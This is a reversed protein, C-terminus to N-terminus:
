KAKDEEPVFVVCETTILTSAASVAYQVASRTVRVPDIVGMEVMDGVVDTAANYGVIQDSSVLKAMVMSPDVGANMLIQRFPSKIAAIVINIGVRQDGNEVQFLEVVEPDECREMKFAIHLLATGGGAIIGESVAAQVANLADDVRDRKEKLETETSAGIKIIAVGSRLKAARIRMFEKDEVTSTSTEDAVCKMLEDIRETVKEEAGGGNVITTHYPTIVVRRATGLEEGNIRDFPKGHAASIVSGGVLVAIDDMVASRSHGFEPSKVVAMKLAGRANNMVMTALAENDVDDAVILLPRGQQHALEMLPVVDNIRTIKDNCLLIYPDELVIDTSTADLNFYPTIYGNEIRLGDVTVLEDNPLNTNEVTIVGDTGVKTMADAILKGIGTDSNASISGVNCISDYGDCGVALKHLENVVFKSAKDIGRKLDMPNMGAAVAKMGEQIISRALVTATTTGDGAASNARNAVERVVDAGMNQVPDQLTIERAVSVGDKTIVPHGNFQQQLIVNRGKPGLTVCVSDALTNVGQLLRARADIGFEVQKNQM